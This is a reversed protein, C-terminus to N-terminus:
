CVYTVLQLETMKRTHRRGKSTRTSMLMKMMMVIVNEREWEDDAILSIRITHTCEVRIWRLIMM